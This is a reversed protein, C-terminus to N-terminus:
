PTTDEDLVSSIMHDYAKEFSQWRGPFDPTTIQSSRITFKCTFHGWPVLFELVIPFYWEGTLDLIAPGIEFVPLFDILNAHRLGYQVFYHVMKDSPRKTKMTHHGKSIDSLWNALREFSPGLSHRMLAAYLAKLSLRLVYFQNTFTDKYPGNYAEAIEYQKRAAFYQLDWQTWFYHAHRKPKRWKQKFTELM